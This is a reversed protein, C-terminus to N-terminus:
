PHCVWPPCGPPPPQPVPVPVNQIDVQDCSGLKQVGNFLVHGDVLATDGGLSVSVDCAQIDTPYPHTCGGWGCNVNTLVKVSRQPAAPVEAGPPASIEGAASPQSPAKACACLCLLLGILIAKM